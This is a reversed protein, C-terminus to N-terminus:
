ALLCLEHEPHIFSVLTTKFMELQPRKPLKKMMIQLTKYLNVCFGSVFWWKLSCLNNVILTNFIM